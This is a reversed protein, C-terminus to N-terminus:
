ISIEREQTESPFLSPLFLIKCLDCLNGFFFAQVITTVKYTELIEIARTFGSQDYTCLTILLDFIQKKVVEKNTDLATALKTVYDANEIIHDLSIDM